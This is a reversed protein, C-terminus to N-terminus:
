YSNIVLVDSCIKWIKSTKWGHVDDGVVVPLLHYQVCPVAMEPARSGKEKSSRPLHSFCDFSSHDFEQLLQLKQFVNELGDM